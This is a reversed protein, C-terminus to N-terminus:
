DGEESVVGGGGGGRQGQRMGAYWSLYGRTILVLRNQTSLRLNNHYSFHSTARKSKLPNVILSESISKAGSCFNM